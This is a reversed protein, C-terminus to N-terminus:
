YPIWKANQNIPHYINRKATVETFGFPAFDKRIAFINTDHQNYIIVYGNEELLKKGAAFSYGYKNTKDWTYGKEYELVVSVNPELTGNFETCILRPKYHKLINQLVYFDCSDIDLNLFDFTIPTAMGELLMVINEPEIFEKIIWPDNTPTMDVGFGFWGDQKLKRTNSMTGDYAGAGLDVFWNHEIGINQFIFSIIAEEHFQSHVKEAKLFKIKDVWTQKSTFKIPLSTLHHPHILRYPPHVRDIKANYNHVGTLHLHFSKIDRSPNLVNYGGQELKYAISNDCGPIGLYFSCDEIEKVKGKFVWTDATDPRDFLKFNNNGMEDWRSLAYCQDKQINAKILEINEEDFYIDTNAIINIDDPGSVTNIFNFYDAYTPRKHKVPVIKDHEVAFEWEYDYFVYLKGIAANIRNKLFCTMLELQRKRDKDLYYNIFLNVM